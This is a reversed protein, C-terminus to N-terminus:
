DLGLEEWITDDDEFGFFEPIDTSPDDIFTFLEDDQDEVHLRAFLPDGETYNENFTVTVDDESGTVQTFGVIESTEENPDGNYVVIWGTDAVTVNDFIISNNTVTADSITFNPTNVVVTETAGSIPTDDTENFTGDGMNYGNDVHLMLVVTDGDELTTGELNLGVNTASESTILEQGIIAGSADTHHAVLWVDTNATVQDVVLTNQSIIQADDTMTITGAPDPDVVVDGDDDDSCSNLGIVLVLVGVYLMWKKLDKVNKM